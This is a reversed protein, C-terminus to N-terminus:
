CEKPPQPMPMWYAVKKVNTGYVHWWGNVGLTGQEVTLQGKEKERAVLVPVGFKPLREATSIWEHM